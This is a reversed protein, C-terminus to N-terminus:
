KDNKNNCRNILDFQKVFEIECRNQIVSDQKFITEVAESMDQASLNASQETLEKKAKVIAVALANTITMKDHDKMISDCQRALIDLIACLYEFRNPYLQSEDKDESTKGESKKEEEESKAEVKTKDGKDEKDAKAQKKKKSDPSFVGNRFLVVNKQNSNDIVTYKSAMRPFDIYSTSKWTGNKLVNSITEELNFDVKDTTPQTM